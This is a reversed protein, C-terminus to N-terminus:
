MIIVTICVSQLIFEYRRLLFTFSNFEYDSCIYLTAMIQMIKLRISELEVSLMEIVTTVAIFLAMASGPHNTVLKGGHLVLNLGM